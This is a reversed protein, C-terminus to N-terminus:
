GMTKRDAEGATTIWREKKTKKEAGKRKRKRREITERKGKRNDTRKEEQRMRLEENATKDKEGRKKKEGEVSEREAKRRDVNFIKTSIVLPPM